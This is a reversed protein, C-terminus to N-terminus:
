HVRAGVLLPAGRELLADELDRPDAEKGLRLRSEVLGRGKSGQVIEVLKFRSVEAALLADLVRGGAVLGVGIATFVYLTDRTDSRHTGSILQALGEGSIVAAAGPVLWVVLAGATVLLLDYATLSSFPPEAPYVFCNTPRRVVGDPSADLRSHEAQPTTM